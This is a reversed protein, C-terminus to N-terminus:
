VASMFSGDNGGIVCLYGQHCKENACVIDLCGMQRRFDKKLRTYFDLEEKQWREDSGKNGDEKLTGIM